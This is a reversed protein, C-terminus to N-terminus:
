VNFTVAFNTNTSKNSVLRTYNAGDVTISSSKFSSTIDFGNPDVISKINWGPHVFCMHSNNTTFTFTQKSQSVIRKTLGKIISETPNDNAVVGIYIPRIFNVSISKQIVTKEYVKGLFTTNTTIGTIPFSVDIDKQNYNRTEIVSNNKLLEVKTINQSQANATIRITGSVTAGIENTGSMTSTMNVTPAVYPHLLNFMMDKLKIGNSVFGKDIGGVSVTSPIQSSYIVDEELVKVKDKLLNIERIVPTLDVDGSGGSGGGGNLELELLRNLISEIQMDFIEVDVKEKKLELIATDIVQINKKIVEIEQKSGKSYDLEELTNLVYYMKTFLSEKDPFEVNQAVTMPMVVRNNSDKLHKNLTM